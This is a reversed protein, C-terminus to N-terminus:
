ESDDSETHANQARIQDNLVNQFAETGGGLFADMLANFEPNDSQTIAAKRIQMQHVTSLVFDLLLLGLGVWLCPRLWIGVISLIIGPLSLYFFHVLFNMIVMLWFLKAPYARKM